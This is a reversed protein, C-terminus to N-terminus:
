RNRRANLEAKIMAKLVKRQQPTLDAMEDKGYLTFLWFQFGADWWYYIVRLGGRKGKGRRADAFRLKRLGGADPVLDGADPDKMLLNELRRFADDDLYDARYREFAPLEVFVAKM